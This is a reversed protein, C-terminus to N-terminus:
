AAEGMMMEYHALHNTKEFIQKFVNLYMEITAADSSIYLDEPSYHSGDNLWSLLSKCIFQENGGFKPSLEQLDINGMIKFYNELIRRLTNQITLSCKVETQVQKWLLEYSTKIPNTSHSEIVTSNNIKKIIWFTEEKLARDKNRSRMGNYTVEKHFYINHTLIFVQKVFVKKNRIKEIIERILSSVIFLINSDLSSIPDDIAVVRDSNIGGDNEDQSGNLLHFFYLFAIFTKEGESLTNGVTSGDPRVITYHLKEISSTQLKFGAFGFKDLIKNIETVTPEISKSNKEFEAIEGKTKRIEKEIDLIQNNISQIAANIATKDKQFKEIESKLETELIFKWVEGTLKGKEKAFNAVLNNHKTVEDRIKTGNGLITSLISSTDELLVVSSPQSEKGKLKLLNTEIKSKLLLNNQEIDKIENSDDHALIFNEIANHLTTMKIEYNNLTKKVKGIDEEFTKNFYLEFKSALELPADQQCFPCRNQDLAKFHSIGEKVWDSIGLSNIVGSIDVDTAGIIKKALISNSELEKIEEITEERVPNASLPRNVPQQGFLIKAQSKLYELTQLTSSNKSNETLVKEQFSNKNNRAGTFADKFDADYKSKQKWCTEIFSEELEQLEKYKATSIIKKFKDEKEGLTQIRKGKDAVLKKEKEKLDNIKNVIEGSLEGLTFVGRVKESQKLNNEIFDSNYVLTKLPHNNKWHLSAKDNYKNIDAIVRSITTKGSGNSGYIYNFEALSELTQEQEPYTAIGHLKIKEIM